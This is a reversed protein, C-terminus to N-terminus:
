FASEFQALMRMAEADDLRYKPVFIQDLTMGDPLKKGTLSECLGDVDLSEDPCLIPECLPLLEEPREDNGDFANDGGFVDAFFQSINHRSYTSWPHPTKTVVPRCLGGTYTYTTRVKRAMRVFWNVPFFHDEEGQGIYLPKPAFSSYIEWMELRGAFHPIINCACHKKEKQLLFALENPYGTSAIAALEPCTASLFCTLTGGGSNGCAGLKEADVYPQKAMCRILAVTEMVILGQMTLGAYFPSLVEWHGQNQREGQGINEVLLAHFGQRALRMAMYQYSPSLRGGAGHGPCVVVLPRKTEPKSFGEGDPSYLTAAGLFGKWSEFRLHRVGMGLHEFPKGFTPKVDPVLEERFALCDKTTEIIEARDEPLWPKRLKRGARAEAFRREYEDFVELTREDYQM